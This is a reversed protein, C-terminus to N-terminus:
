QTYWTGEEEKQAERRKVKREISQIDSYLVRFASFIGMLVFVLTFILDTGLKSDIWMGVHYMIFISVVMVVSFSLALGFYQSGGGYSRKGM